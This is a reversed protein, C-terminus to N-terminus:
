GKTHAKYFLTYFYPLLRYRTRLANKTATLVVGGMSAPDHDIAHLDAHNRSFPYFSGLQQWRACLEITTNTSFGCIDAGALPIGFMNFNLIYPISKQMQEWTATVDGSWSGSWQGSGAFNSRSLVFPRSQNRVTKLADYTRMSETLGYLNHLDYHIGAYQKASACITKGKLDLFRLDPIYQPYEISDNGTCGYSSGDVFNSPENMDIWMGDFPVQKHFGNIVSTWYQQSKPHTFDPYVTHDGAWVKGVLEQGTNNKIFIDLEHGLDYAPYTGKAQKASIGPDTIMVYNLGDSHLEEVFKGLGKYRVPDVTFDLFRDMYDIDSWQTQVPVGADRNIKNIYRTRNLTKYGYRCLHYGLSWHPPFAPRGILQTYQSVVEAPTPGLFFYLDIIGGITRFTITSEPRLIIEMANSNFMFVGHARGSDELSLYFPQSGYLPQNAEPIADSNWFTFGNWNFNRKLRDSHEGLGYVDTSTLKASFEIFQDAFILPSATNTDFIPLGDIKRVVSFAFPHKKSIRVEYLPNSANSTPKNLVPYPPVYRNKEKDLIRVHLTNDTLFKAEFSLTLVDNPHGTTSNRDRSIVAELGNHTSKVSTLNYGKGNLPYYCYPIYIPPHSSRDGSHGNFPTDNLAAGNLPNWCCDRKECEDQLCHLEPCCDLREEVQVRWCENSPYTVPLSFSSNTAACNTAHGSNCRAEIREGIFDFLAATVLFGAVILLILPVHKLKYKHNSRRISVKETYEGEVLLKEEM